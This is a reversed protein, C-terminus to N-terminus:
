STALAPSTRPTHEDGPPRPARYRLPSPPFDLGPQDPFRHRPVSSRASSAPLRPTHRRNSYRSTEPAPYSPHSPTAPCELPAGPACPLRTQSDRHPPAAQADSLRPHAFATTPVQVSPVINAMKLVTETEETVSLGHINGVMTSDTM